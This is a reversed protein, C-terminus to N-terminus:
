NRDVWYQQSSLLREYGGINQSWFRDLVALLRYIVPIGYVTYQAVFTNTRVSLCVSKALFASVDHIIPFLVLFDVLLQSEVQSSDSRQDSDSLVSYFNFCASLHFHEPPITLWIYELISKILFKSEPM